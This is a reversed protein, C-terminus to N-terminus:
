ATGLLSDRSGPEISVDFVDSFHAVLRESVAALSVTRGLLRSASTVGCHSLGCPKILAFHEMVPNINLAMGHMTVWKEVSIGIAAIKANGAWVGSNRQDRGSQLSLDALTRIAIEELDRVYRHIDKGRNRLDIIPYIVLQGPGHYTVDGGRDVFFLSIGKEALAERTAVINELKGALGVTICAPHELLLLSDEGRGELRRARLRRQLGLAEGYDVLGLSYLLCRM